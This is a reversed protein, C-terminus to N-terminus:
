KLTNLFVTFTRDLKKINRFLTGDKVTQIYNLYIYLERINYQLKFVVILIRQKTNKSLKIYM